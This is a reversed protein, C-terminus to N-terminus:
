GPHFKSISMENISFTTSSKGSQSSSSEQAVTKPDMFGSGHLFFAPEQPSPLDLSHNNLYSIITGMTPRSNPNEQVCLLGIQICKIVEVQNYDEKIKPDLISLPTGDRWQKWVKYVEGFGGKGIMNQHSFNNTAAEIISFDFQLGELTASERGFNERLITKSNKKQRRRLIYCCLTFLLAVIAIPVVILIITRSRSRKDRSNSSPTPSPASELSRYFPYIEFRINCNPYLVRGGQKGACCEPLNSNILGDLCSRCDEPSLDPTCQALCYLNQFISIAAEKTAFKKAGIPANAAEDATQNLTRYLLRNFSQQDTMNTPSPLAYGPYGPAVTVRSFFSTNSYRVMCEDYWMVAAVSLSCETNTSLRQSANGVCEGCLDSPIDGRCMYLGYVTDAPTKGTVTNNYFETNHTAKSSLSSLLTRLNNQYTTNIATFRYKSCVQYLFHTDEAKTTISSFNLISILVFFLVNFSAM